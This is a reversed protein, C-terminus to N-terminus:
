VVLSNFAYSMAATVAGNAFKGGSLKSLTGIVSSVVAGQWAGRASSM